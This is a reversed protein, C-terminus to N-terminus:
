WWRGRPTQEAVLAKLGRKLLRFLTRDSIRTVRAHRLIARLVLGSGVSM